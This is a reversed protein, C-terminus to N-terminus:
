EGPRIVEGLPLNTTVKAGAQALRARSQEEQRMQAESLGAAGYVALDNGATQAAMQNGFNLHWFEDPYLEIGAERALWYMVRRSARFAADDASDENDEYYRLSSREGGHDFAAGAPLWLGASLAASPPIDDRSFGDPLRLLWLDISGGTNHPAPRAPDASPKSVYKQTYAEREQATWGPQLEDLRGAFFRFLSEQVSRPRFGDLGVLYMTDPLLSQSKLLAEGLGQRVYVAQLAGPLSDPEYPSFDHAGAYFSASPIGLEGLTVLPEGSEEIPKDKWGDVAPVDPIPTRALEQVEFTRLPM